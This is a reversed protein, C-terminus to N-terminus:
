AGDKAFHESDNQFGLYFVILARKTLRSRLDHTESYEVLGYAVM